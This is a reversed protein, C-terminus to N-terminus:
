FVVLNLVAHSGRWIAIKSSSILVKVGTINYFDSSLLTGNVYVYTRSSNLSTESIDSPSFEFSNTVGDYRREIVSDEVEEFDGWV